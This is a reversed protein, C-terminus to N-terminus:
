VSCRHVTCRDVCLCVCTHPFRLINIFKLFNWRYFIHATQIVISITDGHMSTDIAHFNGTSSFTHASRPQFIQWNEQNSCYIHYRKKTSYARYRRYARHTHTSHRCMKSCARHLTRWYSAYLTCVPPRFPSRCSFQISLILLLICYIWCHVVYCPYIIPDFNAASLIHRKNTIFWFQLIKSCRKMECRAGTLTAVHWTYLLIM